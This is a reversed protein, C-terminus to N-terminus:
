SNDNNTIIYKPVGFRHIIETSFEAAKTSTIPKEEIWKTFKDIAIFIHTYDRPASYNAQLLRTSLSKWRNNPTRGQFGGGGGGWSAKNHLEDDIM